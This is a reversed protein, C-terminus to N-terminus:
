ERFADPFFELEPEPIKDMMYIFDYVAGRIGYNMPTKMKPLLLWNNNDEEINMKTKITDLAESIEQFNDKQSRIAGDPLYNFINSVKISGYQDEEDKHFNVDQTSSTISIHQSVSGDVMNKFKEMKSVSEKGRKRKELSEDVWVLDSQYSADLIKSTTQSYSLPSEEKSSNSESLDQKTEEKNEEIKMNNEEKQKVLARIDIDFSERDKKPKPKHAATSSNHLNSLMDEVLLENHKEKLEEDFITDDDEWTEQNDFYRKNKALGTYEEKQRYSPLDTYEEIQEGAEGSVKDDSSKEESSGKENIQSIEEKKQNSKTEEERVPNSGLSTSFNTSSAPPDKMGRNKSKIFSVKKSDKGFLHNSQAMKQRKFELLYKMKKDGKFSEKGRKKLDTQSELLTAKSSNMKQNKPHFKLGDILINTKSKVQAPIKTFTVSNKRSNTTSKACVLHYLKQNKDIDILLQSNKRRSLSNDLLTLPSTPAKNIFETNRRNKKLRIKNSNSNLIKKNKAFKGEKSKSKRSKSTSINLM